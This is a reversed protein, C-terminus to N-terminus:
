SEWAGLDLLLDLVERIEDEAEKASQYARQLARSDNDEFRALEAYAVGLMPVVDRIVRRAREADGRQGPLM